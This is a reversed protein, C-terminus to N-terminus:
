VEVMDFDSKGANCDPCKWDEPVDKWATGPSIGSEPDGKASDYIWGCNMCMLVMM